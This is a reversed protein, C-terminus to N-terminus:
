AMFKPAVIPLVPTLSGDPLRFRALIAGVEFGDCSNLQATASYFYDWDCLDVATIGADYEGIQSLLYSALADTGAGFATVAPWLCWEPYQSDRENILGQVLATVDIRTWTDSAVTSSIGTGLSKFQYDPVTIPNGSVDLVQNSDRRIAFAAITLDASTLTGSSTANEITSDPVLIRTEYYVTQRQVELDEFRVTAWAEECVAGDPLRAILEPWSYLPGTVNFGFLLPAAPPFNNFDISSGWQIAKGSMPAGANPEVEYSMLNPVIVTDPDLPTGNCDLSSGGYTYSTSAYFKIGSSWFPFDSYPRGMQFPSLGWSFDDARWCFDAPRCEYSSVGAGIVGAGRIRIGGASPFSVNAFLEDFEDLAGAMDNLQRATGSGNHVIRTGEARFCLKDDV